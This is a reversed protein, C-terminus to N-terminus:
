KKLSVFNFHFFLVIKKEDGFSYSSHFYKMSTFKFHKKLDVLRWFYSYQLFIESYLANLFIELWYDSSNFVLIQEPFEKQQKTRVTKFCLWINSNPTSQFNLRTEDIMLSKRSLQAFPLTAYLLFEKILM